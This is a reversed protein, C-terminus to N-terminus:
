KKHCLIVEKFKDYYDEYTKHPNTNHLKIIIPYLKNIDGYCTVYIPCALKKCKYEKYELKENRTEDIAQKIKNYFTIENITEKCILIEEAYPYELEENKYKNKRYIQFYKDENSFNYYQAVNLNTMYEEIKDKLNHEINEGELRFVGCGRRSRKGIGGLILSAKLLNDYFDLDKNIYKKESIKRRYLSMKFEVNGGSKFCNISFKKNNGYGITHNSYENKLQNNKIRFTIPSKYIDSNGFIKEEEEKMDSFSTYYNLARWWFRMSSKIETLRFEPSNLGNNSCLDTINKLEYINSNSQSM